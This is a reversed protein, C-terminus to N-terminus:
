IDFVPRYDSDKLWKEEWTEFKAIMEPSLHKRWNGTQGKRMFSTEEHNTGMLKNAM